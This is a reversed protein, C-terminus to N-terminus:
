SRLRKDVLKYGLSVCSQLVGFFLLRQLPEAHAHNLFGDVEHGAMV